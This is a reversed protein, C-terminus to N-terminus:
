KTSVDDGIVTAVAAAFVPIDAAKLGAVNIRGNSAMYIAHDHRLKLVQEPTVDLLSFMGKHRELVDFRDTRTKQRLAAALNRRLNQVRLRMAEIEGQWQNKLNPDSLIEYVVAAGHDPPMAHNVHALHALMALSRAATEADKSRFLM